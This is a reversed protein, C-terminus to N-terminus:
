RDRSFNLKLALVAFPIYAASIEIAGDYVILGKAVTNKLREFCFFESTPRSFPPFALCPFRSGKGKRTSIPASFLTSFGLFGVMSGLM